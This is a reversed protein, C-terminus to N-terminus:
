DKKIKAKRYRENAIRIRENAEAIQAEQEAKIMAKREEITMHAERWSKKGIAKAKKLSNAGRNEEFTAKSEAKVAALIAKDVEHQAKANERMDKFAKKLFNEKNEM